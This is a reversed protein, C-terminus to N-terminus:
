RRKKGLPSHCFQRLSSPSADSILGQTFYLLLNSVLYADRHLLQTDLFLFCFPCEYHILQNPIYSYHQTYTLSLRLYFGLPLLGADVLQKKQNWAENAENIHLQVARRHLCVALNTKVVRRSRSESAEGLPTEWEWAESNRTRGRHVGHLLSEPPSVTNAAQPSSWPFYSSCM